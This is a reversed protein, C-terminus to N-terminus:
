FWKYVALFASRTIRFLRGLGVELYTCLKDEIRSFLWQRCIDIMVCILLIMVVYGTIIFGFSWIFQYKTLDFISSVIKRISGECLYVALTHKALKNIIQSRIPLQKFYLFLFISLVVIIISCDYAFPSVYENKVENIAFNGLCGVGYIVGCGILLKRASITSKGYQRLWAGIWYVTLMNAFGKGRDKMLDAGLVTPILSFLLLMVILLKEFKEREMNVPVLNLYPSLVLLLM